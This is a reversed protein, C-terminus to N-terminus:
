CIRIEFCSVWFLDSVVIVYFLTPHPEGWWKKGLDTESESTMEVSPSADGTRLPSIQDLRRFAEVDRVVDRSRM